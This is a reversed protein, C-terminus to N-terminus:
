IDPADRAPRLTSRRSRKLMWIINPWAKPGAGAQSISFRNLSTLAQWRIKLNPCFRGHILVCTIAYHFFQMPNIRGLAGRAPKPHENGLWRRCPRGDWREIIFM